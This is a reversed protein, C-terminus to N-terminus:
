RLWAAMNTETWNYLADGAPNPFFSGYTWNMFIDAWDEYENNWGPVDRSHYQCGGIYSDCYYGNDTAEYGNYRSSGGHGTVLNGSADYVGERILMVVPNDDTYIGGANVVLRREFSHGLEHVVLRSTVRGAQLEINGEWGRGFYEMDNRLTFAMRGFARRFITTAAQGSVRSLASGLDSVGLYASTAEGLSWVASGAAKLTVGYRALQQQLITITVPGRFIIQGCFDYIDPCATRGSPDTYRVPNNRVFAYRDWDQSNYPDPVISDPQAFHNLYHDVWRANYFSLGFEAGYSYQGTYQYKTPTTGSSYRVEGFAKYRLEGVNV